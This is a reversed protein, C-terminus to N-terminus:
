LKILKVTEEIHTKSSAGFVVSQINQENIYDYAEKPKIAGSALTSMAMIQYSNNDNKRIKEEYAEIGPSMTFGIKNISSCIVVDKINWEELKNLCYPLNITILGPLVKYKKRVYECYEEFIEKIGYGLMLDTIINQLFIVKLDLGKFMRIELDVLMQMLKIADKSILASGGKTVMGLVGSTTNNSFILENIAPFIGKEAVM